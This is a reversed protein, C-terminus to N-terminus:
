TCHSPSHIVQPRPQLRLSRRPLHVTEALTKNPSSDSLPNHSASPAKGLGLTDDVADVSAQRARNLLVGGMSSGGVAAYTFTRANLTTNFGIVRDSASGPPLTPALSEDTISPLPDILSDAPGQICTGCTFSTPSGVCDSHSWFKCIQCKVTPRSGPAIFIRHSIARCRSQIVRVLMAASVGFLRKSIWLRGVSPAFRSPGRRTM